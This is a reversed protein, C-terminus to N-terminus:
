RGNRAEQEIQDAREHLGAYPFGENGDGWEEAAERLAEAKVMAIGREADAWATAYDEGAEEEMIKAYCGILEVESPVYPESSM